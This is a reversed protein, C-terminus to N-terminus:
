RLQSGRHADSKISQSHDFCGMDLVGVGRVGFDSDGTSKWSIRVDESMNPGGGERWFIGRGLFEECICYWGTMVANRISGM